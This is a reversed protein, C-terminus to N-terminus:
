SPSATPFRITEQRAELVNSSRPRNKDFLVGDKSSYVLNNTDVNIESLNFCYVFAPPEGISTVSGPITVSTLNYCNFFAQQGISTVSNPITIGTLDTCNEFALDGISTV